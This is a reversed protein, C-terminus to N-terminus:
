DNCRIVRGGAGAAATEPFLQRTWRTVDADTAEVSQSPPPPATSAVSASRMPPRRRRSLEPFLEPPYPPSEELAPVLSALTRETGAPDADYQQTWFARRSEGFKGSAIAENIVHERRLEYDSHM